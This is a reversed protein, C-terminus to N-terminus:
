SASAKVLAVALIARQTLSLLVTRYPSPPAATFTQSAQPCYLLFDLGLAVDRTGFKLLRLKPSFWKPDYAAIM